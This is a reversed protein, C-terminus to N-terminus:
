RLLIAFKPRGALLYITFLLIKAAKKIEHNWWCRTLGWTIAASWISNLEWTPATLRLGAARHMFIDTIAGPSRIGCLCMLFRLPNAKGTSRPITSFHWRNKEPKRRTRSRCSLGYPRGNSSRITLRSGTKCFGDEPAAYQSGIL